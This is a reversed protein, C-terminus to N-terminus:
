LGKKNTWNTKSTADLNSLNKYPKAKILTKKKMEEGNSNIQSAYKLSRLWWFM